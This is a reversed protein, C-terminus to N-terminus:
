KENKLHAIARKVANEMERNSKVTQPDPRRQRESDRLPFAGLIMRLPPLLMVEAEYRNMREDM